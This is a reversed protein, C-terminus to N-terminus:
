EGILLVQMMSFSVIPNFLYQGVSKQSLVNVSLRSRSHSKEFFNKLASFSLELPFISLQSHFHSNQPFLSNINLIPSKFIRFHLDSKSQFHMATHLISIKIISADFNFSINSFKGSFHVLDTSSKYKKVTM